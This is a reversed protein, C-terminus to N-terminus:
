LLPCKEFDRFIISRLYSMKEIYLRHICGWATNQMDEPKKVTGIETDASDRGYVLKHHYILIKHIDKILSEFSTEIIFNQTIQM